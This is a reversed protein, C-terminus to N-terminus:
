KRNEERVEKKKQSIVLQEKQNCFTILPEETEETSVVILQIKNFFLWMALLERNLFDVFNFAM